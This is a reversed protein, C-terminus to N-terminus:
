ERFLHKYKLPKDETWPKYTNCFDIREGIPPHTSRLLTLWRPPYPNSLNETQLKVFALAAAHNDRTIELGFRDAEHENYRSYALGIPGVVLSSTNILLLFLPLSAIDSLHRFGFRAGFRRLLQEAFRHAAYTSLLTLLFVFLITRFVHGLVYHGMEHGMIFRTEEPSLKALLTDWLVIRKTDGFGTVYANVTKTDQSKDVEYVRSNAIGARQALQLIQAELPKNKMPGFHNFLPDIWIPTILLSLCLFPITLFSTYLWWRRPSKRLLLYPIWLFLGGVILSILLEKSLDGLWKAFTQNSLDYAHPRVFGQYLALPFDLAFNVLTFVGFYLAIVFFWRRGQQQAWDRLRASFGTFLFLAPVLLGWGINVLWLAVGSRYYRLAQPSPHPVAVPDNDFSRSPATQAPPTPKPQARACLAASAFAAFLLAFM